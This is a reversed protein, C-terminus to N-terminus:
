WSESPASRAAVSRATAAVTGVEGAGAPDDAGFVLVALPVGFGADLEEGPAVGDAGSEQVALGEGVRRRVEDHEGAVV